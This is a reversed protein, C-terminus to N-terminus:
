KLNKMNKIKTKEYENLRQKRLNRRLEYFFFKFNIYSTKIENRM